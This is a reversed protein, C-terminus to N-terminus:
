LYLIYSKAVSSVLLALLPPVLELVASSLDTNGVCVCVKILDWNVPLEAATHTGAASDDEMFCDGGGERSTDM